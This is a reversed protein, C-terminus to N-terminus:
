KNEFKVLGIPTGIWINGELDSTICVARDDPLGSNKTNFVEWKRNAYKIVGNYYSTMWITNNKDIHIDDLSSYSLIDKQFPSDPKHKEWNYGDFSVLEHKGRLWKVGKKDVEIQFFKQDPIGSNNPTYVTWTNNKFLGLSPIPNTIIWVGGENDIAFDKLEEELPMNSSDKDFTTFEVQDFKYLKWGDIYWINGVQDARIRWQIYAQEPWLPSYGKWNGDFKFLGHADTYLWKNNFKDIALYKGALVPDNGAAPITISFLDHQSFKVLSVRANILWINNENDCAIENIAPFPFDTNSTDYVTWGKKNVSEPLPDPKCAIFLGLFLLYTLNIKNM